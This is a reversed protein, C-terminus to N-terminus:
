SFSTSGPVPLVVAGLIGTPIRISGKRGALYEYAGMDAPLLRALGDLDSTPVPQGLGLDIVPSSALLRWDLGAPDVFGPTADINGVGPYGGAIDNYSVRTLSESDDATEWEEQLAPNDVHLQDLSWRYNTGWTYDFDEEDSHFPQDYELRWNDWIINNFIVPDSYGPAIYPADQSNYEHGNRESDIGGGAPDESGSVINGVITNNYVWADFTDDFALAGGRAHNEGHDDAINEAFLNNFVEVQPTFDDLVRALFTAMQARSLPRDPCFWDYAPPNCGRTIQAAALANIGAEHVSEEDDT